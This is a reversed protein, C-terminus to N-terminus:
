GSATVTAIKTDSSTATFQRFEEDVSLDTGLLNMNDLERLRTRLTLVKTNIDQFISRREEFDTKQGELLTIPRRELEVLQEIIKSSDIGSSLGGFTVAGIRLGM